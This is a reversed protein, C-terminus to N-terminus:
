RRTSVALSSAFKRMGSASDTITFTPTLQFLLILEVLTVGLLILDGLSRGFL